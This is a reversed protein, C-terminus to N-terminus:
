LVDLLRAVPPALAHAFREAGARNVHTNDLFYRRDLLGDFNVVTLHYSTALRTVRRLNDAYAANDIYAHLVEHNVPPLVVIAPIHRAALMGFLHEAYAYSVNSTDLPTLDYTAAYPAVRPHLPPQLLPEVRRHLASALDADGFLAQHVDVRSAYLLWHEAVFRDLRDAPSAPRLLTDNLKGRDFPEALGPLTLEALTANLTDYATATQNFSAPNLEVLVARPRVGRALLYRLVFDANIPTQAEYALNTVRTGALGRALQAVPSDAPAVGYGWLESDGLVVLSSGLASQAAYRQLYSSSFHEPLREPWRQWASLALDTLVLLLLTISASIWVDARRRGSPVESTAM